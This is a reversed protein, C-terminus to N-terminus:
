SRKVIRYSYPTGQRPTSRPATYRRRIPQPREMEATRAVLGHVAEIFVPYAERSARLINSVLESPSHARTTYRYEGPLTDDDLLEDGELETRFLEPPLNTPRFAERTVDLGFEFVWRGGAWRRGGADQRFTIYWTVPLYKRWDLDCEVYFVSRGKRPNRALPLTSRSGQRSWGLDQAADTATKTEPWNFLLANAVDKGTEAEILLNGLDKFGHHLATVGADRALEINAPENFLLREVQYNLTM